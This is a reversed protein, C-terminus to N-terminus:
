VSPRFFTCLFRVSYTGAGPGVDEHVVRILDLSFLRSIGPEGMAKYLLAQEAEGSSLKVSAENVADAKSTAEIGEVTAVLKIQFSPTGYTVTSKM